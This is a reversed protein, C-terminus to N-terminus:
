FFRPFMRQHSFNHSNVLRTSCFLFRWRSNRRFLAAKARTLTSDSIVGYFEIRKDTASLYLRNLEPIYQNSVPCEPSLFVLVVGKVRESQGLSQTKGAFDISKLTALPIRRVDDAAVRNRSDALFMMSFLLVISSPRVVSRMGSMPVREKVAASQRHAISARRHTM